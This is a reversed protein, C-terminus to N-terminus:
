EEGKKLNDIWYNKYFVIYKALFHDLDLNEHLEEIMKDVSIPKLLVRKIKDIFEVEQGKVWGYEAYGSYSLYLFMDNVLLEKIRNFENLLIEKQTSILGTTDEDTEGWLMLGISYYENESKNFTEILLPTPNHILDLNRYGFVIHGSNGDSSINFSKIKILKQTDIYQLLNNMGKEAGLKRRWRKYKVQCSDCFIESAEFFWKGLETYEPSWTPPKQLPAPPSPLYQIGNIWFTDNELHFHYPKELLRGHLILWGNNIVTDAVIGSSEGKSEEQALSISIGAVLIALLIKKM